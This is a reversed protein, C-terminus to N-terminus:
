GLFIRYSAYFYAAIILISPLLYSVTTRTKTRMLAFMLIVSLICVSLATIQLIPSVMSLIPANLYFADSGTLILMNFINSGLISGLALNVNQLRLAVLVAVAEPMSTTAALFFSGIFSSGIGTVDAIEDGVYSLTTGAGTIILAMLFFGAMTKKVSFSAREAPSAQTSETKEEQSASRQVIKGIMYMGLVYVLAIFLSDVGLGYVMYDSRRTLAFLVMLSLILGLGATYMHDRSAAQYIRMKRFYLDFGAIIFLNFMNSGLMNGIAIDPNGIFVSSISTTVEPLSTAGALLTTGVLMGGLSTKESLEDAYNSLAIAALVTSIAASLFLIFLM